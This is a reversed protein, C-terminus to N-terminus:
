QFILFFSYSYSDFWFLDPKQIKCKYIIIGTALGKIIFNISTASAM